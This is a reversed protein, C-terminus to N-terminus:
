PHVIFKVNGSSCGGNTTADQVVVTLTLASAFNIGSNGLTDIQTTVGSGAGLGSDVGIGAIYTYQSATTSTASIFAHYTFPASSGSAAASTVTFSNLTKGTSDKIYLTCNMAANAASASGTGGGIVEITSSANLISAGLVLQTTSTAWGTTSLSIGTAGVINIEPGGGSWTLVGSGNNTLINNAAGQSSPLSYSVGNLILPNAVTSSAYLNKVGFYTGTFNYSQTQDVSASAWSPATASGNSTLFQGSTGFGNVTKFGSAGNGLMVLNSSPSTTGTGQEAVTIPTASWTGSTITGVTALSAASTLSALTTVTNEAKDTNLNSFNTNITTRSGSITDSGNITTITSGFTHKIVDPFYNLPVYSVLGYSIVLSVVSQLVLNTLFRM